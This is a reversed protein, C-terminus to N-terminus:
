RQSEEESACESSTITDGVASQETTSDLSMTSASMMNLWNEQIIKQTIIVDLRLHHYGNDDKWVTGMYSLIFDFDDLKPRLIFDGDNMMVVNFVREEGDCYFTLALRDGAKLNIDEDGDFELSGTEAQAFGMSFEIEECRAAYAKPQVVYESKKLYREDSKGRIYNWLSLIKKRYYNKNTSGGGAYQAVFYDDDHPTADGDALKNIMASVGSATSNTGDTKVVPNGEIRVNTADLTGGIRVNGSVLEVPSVNEFTVDPAESLKVISSGGKHYMTLGQTDTATARMKLYVHLIGSVYKFAIGLVNIGGYDTREYKYAGGLKTIKLIGAINKYVANIIISRFYQEWSPNVAIEVYWEGTTDGQIFNSESYYFDDYFANYNYSNYGYIPLEGEVLCLLPSLNRYNNNDSSATTATTLTKYIRVVKAGTDTSTTFVVIKNAPTSSEPFETWWSDVGRFFNARLSNYTDKRALREAKKYSKQGFFTLCLGDIFNNDFLDKAKNYVGSVLSVIQGGTIERPITKNVAM